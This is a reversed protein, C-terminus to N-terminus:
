RTRCIIQLPQDNLVFTVWFYKGGFFVGGPAIHVAAKCLIPKRSHHFTTAGLSSYVMPGVKTAIGLVSSLVSSLISSLFLISLISKLFLNSLIFMSVSNKREFSGKWCAVAPGFSQHKPWLILSVSLMPVMCGLDEAFAINAERWLRSIPYQGFEFGACLHAAIVWM